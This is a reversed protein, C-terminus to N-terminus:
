EAGMRAITSHHVTPYQYVPLFKVSFPTQQVNASSGSRKLIMWRGQAGTSLFQWLERIRGDARRSHSVLKRGDAVHYAWCIIEIAKIKIIRTVCCPTARDLIVIPVCCLLYDDVHGYVAQQM